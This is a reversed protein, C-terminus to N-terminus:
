RDVTQLWTCNESVEPDIGNTGLGNTILGIVRDDNDYNAHADLPNAVEGLTFIPVVNAVNLVVNTIDPCLRSDMYENRFNPPLSYSLLDNPDSFAIVSLKEFFRDDYHAGGKQCYQDIKGYVIPKARGLQLLPLQNALMFVEFEKEKMRDFLLAEYKEEPSLSGKREETQQTMELARTLADIVIRSGLSHTVFIYDENQQYAHSKRSAVCNGEQYDAVDTWGHHTMWCSGQLVSRLIKERSNGLYIMPDAIHENLFGKMVQNINARQFAFEGSVDYAIAKKEEKTIDSWTLEYFLLERDTLENFYRAITLHGIKEDYYRPDRIEVVKVTEETKDLGLSHILHNSLRTSYGPLHDGIGHVMLVKIIRHSNQGVPKKTKMHTEIGKFSPGKISCILKNESDAEGSGDDALLARTVGESIGACGSLLMTTLMVAFLLVIKIKM